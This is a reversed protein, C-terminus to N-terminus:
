VANGDDCEETGEVVGNGCAPLTCAASCADGNAFNGDDCAEGADVTGDGCYTTRVRTITFGEGPFAVSDCPGNTGMFLILEALDLAVSTGARTGTVPVADAPMGTTHAIGVIDGAGNEVLTWTLPEGLSGSWTGTLNCGEFVCTASCGDGSVTNGDDCEEGADPIGDGCIASWAPPSVLLLSWALVGALRM